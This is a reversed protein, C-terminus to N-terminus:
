VTISHIEQSGSMILQIIIQFAYNIDIRPYQMVKPCSDSCPGDIWEIEDSEDLSYSNSVTITCCYLLTNVM